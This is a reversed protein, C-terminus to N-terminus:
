AQESGISLTLLEGDVQSQSRLQRLEEDRQELHFDMGEQTKLMDRMQSELRDAQQSPTPLRTLRHFVILSESLERGGEVDEM